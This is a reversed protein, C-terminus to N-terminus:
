LNINEGATSLLIVALAGNALSSLAIGLLIRCPESLPTNCKLKYDNQVKEMTHVPIYYM